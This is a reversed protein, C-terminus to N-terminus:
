LLSQVHLWEAECQASIYANFHEDSYSGFERVMLFDDDYERVLLCKTGFIYWSGGQETDKAIKTMPFPLSVESLDQIVRSDL